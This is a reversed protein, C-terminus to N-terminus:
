RISEYHEDDYDIAIHSQFGVGDIPCGAETLNKVLDYVRDSKTAYTGTMSAHKYDNYFLKVDPAVKRAHTFAKCIYDDIITWPSVKM